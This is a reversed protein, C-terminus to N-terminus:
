HRGYVEVKGNGEDVVCLRGQWDFRIQAPYWLEGRGKGRRLFAYQFRGQPDFVGIRGAHRDLLYLRGGGDVELSVPFQLRNKELVITREVRGALSFVHVTGALGDLAWLGGQRLKFDTFGRGGSPGQFTRVVQLNDDLQLIHGQLRDLLYLENGPGLEIRGALVPRGVTDVPSFRRADRGRPDIYFLQNGARNVV